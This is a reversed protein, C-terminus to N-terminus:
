KMAKFKNDVDDVWECGEWKSADVAVIEVDQPDRKARGIKDLLPEGVAHDALRGVEDVVQGVEVVGL